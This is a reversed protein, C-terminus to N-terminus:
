KRHWLVDPRFIIGAGWICSLSAIRQSPAEATTWRNAPNNTESGLPVSLGGTAYYRLCGKGYRLFFSPEVFFNNSGIIPHDNYTLETYDIYVSRLSLGGLMGKAWLPHAFYAQAYNRRYHADFVGAQHPLPIPIYASAKYDDFAIFSRSGWGTGGILAWYTASTATPGQYFGIGVSGQRQQDIASITVGQTTSSGESTPIMYSMEGTLLLHPLPSWAAGVEANGHMEGGATVELQGKEVIPTLPTNPSYVTACSSLLAGIILVLIPFSSLLKM